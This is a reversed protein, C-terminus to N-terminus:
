HALIEWFTDILKQDTFNPNMPKQNVIKGLTQGKPAALIEGNDGFKDGVADAFKRAGQVPSQAKGLLQMLGFGINAMFWRKFPPLDRLGNTGYTLGPSFWIAELNESPEQALKSVWLAGLLKSVGIADMPNYKETSNGSNLLYEKLHQPSKFDPSKIMGPIGRAGEGGPYIVRAKPSLLNKEQLAKLTIHAGIVNQFITKEFQRGKWSTQQFEKEFVAGGAALFVIDIKKDKPLADIAKEIQEPANMDFGGFPILNSNIPVENEIELQLQQSKELTRSGLYLTKYGDKILHKITEKALGGNAGTVFITKAEKNM